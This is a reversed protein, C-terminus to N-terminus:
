PHVANKWVGGPRWGLVFFSFGWRRVFWSVLVGDNPCFIIM